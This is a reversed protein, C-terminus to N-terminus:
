PLDTNYTRLRIPSPWSVCILMRNWTADHQTNGLDHQSKELKGRQITSQILRCYPALIPRDIPRAFYSVPHASYAVKKPGFGLFVFFPPVIAMPKM